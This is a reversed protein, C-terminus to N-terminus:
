SGTQKYYFAFHMKNCNNKNFPLQKNVEQEKVSDFGGKLGMHGVTVIFRTMLSNWDQPM